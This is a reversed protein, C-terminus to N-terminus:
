RFHHLTPKAAEGVESEFYNSKLIVTKTTVAAADPLKPLTGNIQCANIEVHELQQGVGAVGGAFLGAPLPGPMAATPECVVVLKQLTKTRVGGQAVRQLFTSIVVPPGQPAPYSNNPSGGDDYDGADAETEEYDGAYSEYDVQSTSNTSSSAGTGTAAEDLLEAITADWIEEDPMWSAIYTDYSGRPGVRVSVGLLQARMVMPLTDTHFTDYFLAALM